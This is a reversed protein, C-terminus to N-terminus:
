LGEHTGLYRIDGFVNTTNYPHWWHHMMECEWVINYGRMAQRTTSPSHNSGEIDDDYVYLHM